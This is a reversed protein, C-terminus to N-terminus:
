DDLTGGEGGGTVGGTNAAGSIIAETMGGLAEVEEIIRKADAEMRATLWEVYYSGGLPDAVQAACCFVGPRSEMKHGCCLELRHARWEAYYSGGVLPAAM